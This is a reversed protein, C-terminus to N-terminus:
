FKEIKGMFLICNTSVEYITFIFPHDVIMPDLYEPMNAALDWAGHTVAAATAGKEDVKFFCGQRVETIFAGVNSIGPFKANKSDYADKIGLIKLADDLPFQKNLEFKPMTIEIKSNVHWYLSRGKLEDICQDISAGECPLAISMCYAGNGFPIDVYRAMETESYKCNFYNSKMYPVKSASNDFNIFDQDGVGTFKVGQNWINQYYVANLLAFSYSKGDELMKPILGNTHKSCWSNVDSAFHSADTNAAKADFYKSLTSKYSDKVPFANDIWMSNACSITCNKDRNLLTTVLFKSNENIEELSMDELGLAEAIEDYTNGSAGNLLMTLAINASIPSLCINEGLTNENVVDMLNWAFDVGARAVQKEGRSLSIAVKPNNGVVDDPEDSCGAAVLCLAFAFAFYIRKM